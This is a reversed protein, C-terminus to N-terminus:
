SLKDSPVEEFATDVLYHVMKEVTDVHLEVHTEVRCDVVEARSLLGHAARAIVEM